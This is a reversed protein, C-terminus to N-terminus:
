KNQEAGKYIDERPHFNDAVITADM